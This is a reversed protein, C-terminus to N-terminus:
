NAWGAARQPSFFIIKQNLAEWGQQSYHYLNRYIQLYYSLHRAGIMHFYNTMGKKGHLNIWKEYFDDVLDQFAGIDDNSFEARSRAANIMSNYAAIAGLWKEQCLNDDDPIVPQILGDLNDIFECTPGNSMSVKNVLTKDDTLPFWWQGPHHHDGCIHTNM